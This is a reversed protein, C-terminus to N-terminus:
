GEDDISTEAVLAQLLLGRAQMSAVLQTRFPALRRYATSAMDLEYRLNKRLEAHLHIANRAEYTSILENGLDQEILQLGVACSIKEDFRVKNVDTRGIGQYTPIIVKSDHDLTKELATQKHQPIDIRVLRPYEVLRRVSEEEGLRDFLVHHIVAEYISAYQLIQIRVQARLWWDSADIGRFLKYVSRAAKFEEALRKRLGADTVFDFYSSYWEDQPLHARVYEHIKEQIPQELSMVHHILSSLCVVNKPPDAWNAGFDSTQGGLFCNKV